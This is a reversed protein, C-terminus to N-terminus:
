ATPGARLRVRVIESRSWLRMRPGWTGTGRCVILQMGGVRYGGAVYPYTMGVIYTFPWIQGGHTHGSLMLGVGSGAATDAQWPTHSILVTAIGAPRGALALRIFDAGGQGRRGRSTLDDVGALALGPRAEAWQDRLVHIGADELLQEASSTRGYGEHNGNVAWVGLPARLQRLAPLFQAGAEGHGEVIDGALVILDPREANIQDVRAALWKPGLMAGLHLDSAEVIVMGDAQRPLGALAVEYRCVRPPRLGQALALLGLALGAVMGWRRIAPAQRQLLWGFGTALDSILMAVFLLFLIGLWNTGVEQLIWGLRPGLASESFHALPFSTWLLLGIVILLKRSIRRAIAPVSAARWLVYVHMVTWVALFVGLFM